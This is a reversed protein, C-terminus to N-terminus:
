LDTLTGAFAEAALGVTECLTPHPHVTLAVDDADAGMEIALGIEAILEGAHAGVVGGGILRRSGRAFVLKTVGETHGLTLARGSATWPFTGAAADIGRAQAAQETLGVWAVEPDTYAVAPILDTDFAAQHGAIVEAAVKGERSAKHALMPTSTVDGIAFIHPVNTRKQADSAIFGRGDVTVGAKEAAISNGNPARGVAVLVRDFLAPAADGSFTAQLADGAREIREVKTSLLIQESRRRLSRELPRVLDADTGPLLSDQMEVISIRSGLAQYITAMELGIAGAGIILLRGPVDALALAGTSDIIRPEDAPLHPLRVSRSGVAIICHSFSITEHGNVTDVQM